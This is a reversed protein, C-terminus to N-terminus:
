ADSLSLEDDLSRLKEVLRNGAAIFEPDGKVMAFPGETGVADVSAKLEEIRQQILAYAADDKLLKEEDTAEWGQELRQRIQSISTFSKWVADGLASDGLYKLRLRERECYLAQLEFAIRLAGKKDPWGKLTCREFVVFFERQANLYQRAADVM